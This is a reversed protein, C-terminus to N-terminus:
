NVVLKQTSVSGGSGLSVVYIGPALEAADWEVRDTGDRIQLTALERGHIDRITISCSRGIAPDFTFTVSGTTPNPQISFSRPQQEEQVAVNVEEVLLRSVFRQRPDNITGDNYGTYSGTIYLRGQDDVNVEDIESATYNFWQFTGVGQEHFAPLVNGSSDIMCISSRPQGNVYRFRGTVILNGDYWPHLYTVIAGTSPNPLDGPSFQPTTFSPDVSGDSLLRVVYMTDTPATGHRFKGGIYTRGDESTHYSHINGAIIGTAFSTDLSGNEHIRFVRGVSQGDYMTCSCSCLFKGDPLATFAWMAGNAQRHIRTTDLYGENSFWILQYSGVFGRISDSLHHSGTILVRGDQFVHYDGGQIPFFYPGTNLSVFTPDLYGQNNLRRLGQGVAVYYQDNWTTLKGGGIFTTFTLDQQGNELLRASGRASGMDGPFKIQGSLLLKGNPMVDLSNVYQETISTRFSTDLRFNWQASAVIAM